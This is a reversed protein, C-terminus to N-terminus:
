DIPLSSWSVPTVTVQRIGPRRLCPEEFAGAHQVGIDTLSLLVVRGVDGLDAEVGHHIALAVFTSGRKGKRASAFAGCCIAINKACVWIESKGSLGKPNTRRRKSLPM